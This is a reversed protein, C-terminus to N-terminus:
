VGLSKSVVNGVVGVIVGPVWTNRLSDIAKQALSKDPTATRLEAAIQSLTSLLAAFQQNMAQDAKQQALQVQAGSLSVQNGITTSGPGGGTVAVTMGTGGYSIVSQGVVKISIQFQNPNAQLAAIMDEIVQAAELTNM